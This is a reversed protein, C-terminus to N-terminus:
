ALTFWFTSGKGPQSEASVRGGMREVMSSVNYLGIGTGPFEKDLVLREFPRWIKAEYQMDFGIGHDRVFFATQGDVRSMGVEIRADNPSYKMANEIYNSYVLKVLRPDGLGRMGPEIQVDFKRTHHAAQEVTAEEAIATIDLAELVLDQSALRSAELLEDILNGLKKAAAVQSDLLRFADESLEATHDEQLIRSTAIVARLPARLDHSVSYNWSEQSRRAAELQATRELVRRELDAENQRLAEVAMQRATVDMISGIRQVAVGDDIEAIGRSLMWKLTGDPLFLRYEVEHPLGTETAVRVAERVASLDDPHIYSYMRGVPGGQAEERTMGYMKQLNADCWVKEQAIDVRYTGVEAASLAGEVAQRTRVFDTVDEVTITAAILRGNEFAPVAGCRAIFQHGTRLNRISQLVGEVTEGRLARAAVWAEEPVTDGLRKVELHRAFDAYRQGLAKASDLDYLRCAAANVAILVSDARFILLGERAAEFAARALPSGLPDATVLPYERTKSSM